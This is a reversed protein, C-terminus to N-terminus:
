AIVWLAERELTVSLSTRDGINDGDLQVPFPTPASIEVTDADHAYSVNHRKSVTGSILVQWVLRLLSRRKLDRVTLVELGGDMTAGPTVKVGWRKFFTYPHTRGILVTVAPTPDAGDVRVALESPKGAYRMGERVVAWLSLWEFRRKSRPNRADVHAMAAADVGVGCAFCFRRGDARGINLRRRRGAAAAHLLHVTAEVPDLPVGLWRALVNTAGGPIIGLAVDTGALANLAENITGDGSFVVVLDFGEAVAERALETAHGRARTEHVDLKFDAALAREIVELLPRSVTRAVPNALLMVREPRRMPLEGGSVPPLLAVQEDGRLPQDLDAREGNVVVSGAAAIAGFREGFKETLAGVIERPTDGPVDLERDGAIDRLAAFLRVRAM